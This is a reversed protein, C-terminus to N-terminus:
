TAITMFSILYICEYVDFILVQTLIKEAEHEFADLRKNHEKTYKSYVCTLLNTRHESPCMAAKMAKQYPYVIGRHIACIFFTYCHINCVM